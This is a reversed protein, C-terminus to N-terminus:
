QVADIRFSPQCTESLPQKTELFTFPNIPPLISLKNFHTNRGEPQLTLPFFSSHKHTGRGFGNEELKRLFYSSLIFHVNM